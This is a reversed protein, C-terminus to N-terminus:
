RNLLEPNQHINGMVDYEDDLQFQCTGQFRAVKLGYFATNPYDGFVEDLSYQVVGVDVPGHIWRVIDGEYIEVGKSDLLGTFQEIHVKGGHEETVRDYYVEDHGWAGSGHHCSGLAGVYRDPLWGAPEHTGLYPWTFAERWVRYKIVRSM